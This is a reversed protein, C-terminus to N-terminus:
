VLFLLYTDAIARTSIARAATRKSLFEIYSRKIPRKQAKTKWKPLTQIQGREGPYYKVPQHPPKNSVQNAELMVITGSPDKVFYKQGGKVPSLVVTGTAPKGQYDKYHVQSGQPFTGAPAKAWPGQVPSQYYKPMAKQYSPLGLYERLADEMVGSPQAVHRKEEVWNLTNEYEGEGAKTKDAGVAQKYLFAAVVSPSRNMGESCHVYVKKGDNVWQTLQDVAQGLRAIRAKLAQPSPAYEEIYLHKYEVDPPPTYEHQSVNLIADFPKGTGHDRMFWGNGIDGLWIQPTIQDAMVRTRQTHKNIVYDLVKNTNAKDAEEPTVKENHGCNDSVWYDVQEAPFIDMDQGCKPCPKFLENSESDEEDADKWNGCKPCDWVAWEQSDEYEMDSGCKDCKQAGVMDGLTGPEYKFNEIEAMGPEQKPPQPKTPEKYPQNAHQEKYHKGRLTENEHLVVMKDCLPCYVLDWQGRPPADIAHKSLPFSM